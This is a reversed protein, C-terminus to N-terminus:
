RHGPQDQLIRQMAAEEYLRSFDKLAKKGLYKGILKEVAELKLRLFLYAPKLTGKKTHKM